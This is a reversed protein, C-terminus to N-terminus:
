YSYKCAYTSGGPNLVCENGGRTKFTTVVQNSNGFIESADYSKILSWCKKIFATTVGFPKGTVKDIMVQVKGSALVAVLLYSGRIYLYALTGTISRGNVYLQDNIIEVKENEYGLTRTEEETLRYYQTIIEKPETTEKAQVSYSSLNFVGFTMVFALFLKFLKKM